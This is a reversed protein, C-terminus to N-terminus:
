EPLPHFLEGRKRWGRQSPDKRQSWEKFHAEGKLWESEVTSANVGLRRALESATQPSLVPPTGYQNAKRPRTSYSQLGGRLIAQEVVVLRGQLATMDAKLEAMGVSSDANAVTTGTGSDFFQKVIAGLAASETLSQAQMYERLKMHYAPPLYGVVRVNKTVILYALVTSGM